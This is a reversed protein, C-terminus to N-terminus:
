NWMPNEPFNVIHAYKPGLSIVVEKWLNEGDEAFLSDALYDNSIIWSNQEM